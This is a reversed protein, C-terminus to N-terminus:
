TMYIHRYIYAKLVNTIINVLTINGHKCSPRLLKFTDKNHIAAIIRTLPIICTMHDM